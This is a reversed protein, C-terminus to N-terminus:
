VVSLLVSWGSSNKTMPVVVWDVWRATATRSRGLRMGASMVYAWPMAVVSEDGCPREVVSEGHLEVGGARGEVDGHGARAEDGEARRRAESRDDREAPAISSATAMPRAM